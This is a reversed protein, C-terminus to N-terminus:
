SPWPLSSFKGPAAPLEPGAARYGFERAIALFERAERAPLEPGAARYGFPCMLLDGDAAALAGQTGHRFRCGQSVASHAPSM